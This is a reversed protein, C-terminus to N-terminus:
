LAVGVTQLSIACVNVSYFCFSGFESRERVELLCVPVWFDVVCGPSTFWVFMCCFYSSCHFMKFCVVSPMDENKLSIPLEHLFFFFDRILWVWVCLLCHECPVFTLWPTYQFSLPIHFWENKYHYCVILPGSLAGSTGMFWGMWLFLHYFVFSWLNSLFLRARSQLAKRPSRFQWFFVCWHQTKAVVTLLPAVTHRPLPFLKFTRSQKNSSTIRSM